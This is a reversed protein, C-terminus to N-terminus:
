SIIDLYIDLSRNLSASVLDIFDSYDDTTHAIDLSEYYKVRDENRIIIIQYGAKILEFNM